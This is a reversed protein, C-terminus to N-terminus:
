KWPIKDFVQKILPKSRACVDDNLSSARQREPPYIKLDVMRDNSYWVFAHCAGSITSVRAPHGIEMTWAEVKDTVPLTPPTTFGLHVGLSEEPPRWACDALASSEGTGTMRRPPRVSPVGIANSADDGTLLACPDVGEFVAPIASAPQGEVTVTSSSTQASGGSEDAGCGATLSAISVVVALGFIAPAPRTVPSGGLLFPGFLKRCDLCVSWCHAVRQRPSWATVEM